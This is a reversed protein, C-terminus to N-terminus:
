TCQHGCWEQPAMKIAEMNGSYAAVRLQENLEEQTPKAKSGFFNGIM